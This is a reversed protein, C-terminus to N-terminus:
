GAEQGDSVINNGKASPKLLIFRSYTPFIQFITRAFNSFDPISHPRELFRAPYPKHLFNHLGRRKV